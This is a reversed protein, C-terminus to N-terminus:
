QNDDQQQLKALAAWRPDINNLHCDCTHNNWNVGCTPCLGKCDTRCFVQSPRALFTEERLLPALDLINDDGIRFPSTSDPDTAFLEELAVPFAIEMDELCRSCQDLVVVEVTGQLLLGESTRTLRLEGFLQELMLDDSVRLREPIELPTTRSFASGEALIFGVNIKLVRPNVYSPNAM